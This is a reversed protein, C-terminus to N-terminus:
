RTADFLPSCRKAILKGGPLDASDNRFSLPADALAKSRCMSQRRSVVVSLVATKSSPWVLFPQPAALCALARRRHPHDSRRGGPQLFIGLAKANRCLPVEQIPSAGLM